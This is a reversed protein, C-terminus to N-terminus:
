IRVEGRLQNIIIDVVSTMENQNNVGEVYVKFTYTRVKNNIVAANVIVFVLLQPNRRILLFFYANNELGVFRRWVVIGNEYRM